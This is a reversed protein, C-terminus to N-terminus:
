GLHPLAGVHTREIGLELSGFDSIDFVSLQARQCKFSIRGLLLILIM